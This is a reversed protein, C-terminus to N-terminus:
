AAKRECQHIYVYVKEAVDDDMLCVFADTLITPAGRDRFRGLLDRIMSKRGENPQSLLLELTSNISPDECAAKLMGVLGEIDAFTKPKGTRSFQYQKVLRAHERRGSWYGAAAVPIWILWWFIARDRLSGAITERQQLASLRSARATLDAPTPQYRFKEGSALTYELITGRNIFESQGTAQLKDESLKAASKTDVTVSSPGRPGDAQLERLSQAQFYFGAAVCIAFCAFLTWVSISGAGYIALHRTREVIVVIVAVLLLPELYSSVLSDM